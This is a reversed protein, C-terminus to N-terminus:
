DRTEIIKRSVYVDDCRLAGVLLYDNLKLISGVKRRVADDENHEFVILGYRWKDFQISEFIELESGETDVSLFEIYNPLAYERYLEEMTITHVPVIEYDCHQSILDWHTSLTDRFGSFYSVDGGNRRDISVKVFERMGGLNHENMQPSTETSLSLPAGPVQFGAFRGRPISGSVAKRCVRCKRNRFNRLFPDVCLGEWGRERELWATQSILEGDWCGIELFFGPERFFHNLYAEINHQSHYM